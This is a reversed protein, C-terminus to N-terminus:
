ILLVSNTIHIEPNILFPPSSDCYLSEQLSFDISPPILTIQQLFNETSSVSNVDAKNIIFEDEVKNLVFEDQCCVPNDFSITIPYETNEEACCSPKIKEMEAKCINCESLSTQQMMECYHFFAPMGTTAIFFLIILSLIQTKRIMM